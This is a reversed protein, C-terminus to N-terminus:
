VIPYLTDYIERAERIRDKYSEIVENDRDVQFIKIRKEIPINQFTLEDRVLNEAIQWVEDLSLGNNEPLSQTKWAKRETEQFILHEPADLLTYVLYSTDHGSLWMYVQLQHFYDKNPVETEFWPFTAASWSNKIDALVNQNIDPEGTCHDNYLRKKVAKPDIDWKLVDRCIDISLQENIIGKETYKSSMQHSINYKNFLIAEKIINMATAGFNESKSRGKTMLGGMQSARVLWEHRSSM